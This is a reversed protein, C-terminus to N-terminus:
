NTYIELIEQIDDNVVTNGYVDANDSVSANGLVKANGHVGANDSVKANETIVANGYVQANGNIRANGSVRANECVIANGYIRANGFVQAYERAKTYNYLRANETVRAFNSVLASDYIWCSGKQSLNYYGELYGGISGEKVHSFKKIAKPRYYNERACYYTNDKILIYKWSKKYIM